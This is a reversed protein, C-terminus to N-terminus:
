YRSDMTGDSPALSSATCSRRLPTSTATTVSKDTSAQHRQQQQPQQHPHQNQHLQQQQSRAQDAYRRIPSTFHTYMPASLGSHLWGEEPVAGSRFYKAPHILRTAVIRVLEAFYKDGKKGCSQLSAALTHANRADFRKIGHHALAATLGDFMAAQPPPHNRLLAADADAEVIRAAVSANALVMWEEILSHTSTDSTSYLGMSTPRRSKPDEGDVVEPLEFKMEPSALDLAGESRRASKLEVSLRQPCLRLPTDRQADAM